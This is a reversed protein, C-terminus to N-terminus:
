CIVLMHHWAFGEWETVGTSPRPSGVLHRDELAMAANSVRFWTAEPEAGTSCVESLVTRWRRSCSEEGESEYDALLRPGSARSRIMCVVCIDSGIAPEALLADRPGAAQWGWLQHQQASGLGNGLCGLPVAYGPTLGWGLWLLSRVNMVSAGDGRQM